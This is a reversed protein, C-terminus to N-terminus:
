EGEPIFKNYLNVLIQEAAVKIEEEVVPVETEPVEETEEVEVDDASALKSLEDYFARAMIRGRADYDEAIKQLELEATKEETEEVPEVADEVVDAVAEVVETPVDTEVEAVEAVEAPVEVSEPVEEVAVPANTELLQATKVEKTQLSEVFTQAATKTNATHIRELIEDVKLGGSM